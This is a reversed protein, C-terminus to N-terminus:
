LSAEVGEKSRSTSGKIPDIKVQAVESRLAAMGLSRLPSVAAEMVLNVSAVGFFVVCLPIMLIGACVAITLGLVCVSNWLKDWRSLSVGKADM